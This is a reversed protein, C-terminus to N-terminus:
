RMGQRSTASCKRINIWTNRRGVKCCCCRATPCANVDRGAVEAVAGRFGVDAIYVGARRVSVGKFHM